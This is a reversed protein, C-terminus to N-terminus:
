EDRVTGPMEPHDGVTEPDFAGQLSDGIAPHGEEGVQEKHDEKCAEKEQLPEVEPLDIDPIEILGKEESKNIDNENENENRAEIIFRKNRSRDGKGIEQRIVEM